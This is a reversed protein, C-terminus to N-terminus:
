PKKTKQVKTKPTTRYQVPNGNADTGWNWGLPAKGKIQTKTPKTTISKASGEPHKNDTVIKEPIQFELLAPKAEPNNKTLDKPKANREGIEPAENATTTGSNSQELNKVPKPPHKRKNPSKIDWYVPITGQTAQDTRTPHALRASKQTSSKATKAKGALKRKSSQALVNTTFVFTLSILLIVFLNRKLMRRQEM